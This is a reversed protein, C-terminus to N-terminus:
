GGVQKATLTATLAGATGSTYVFKIRFETFDLSDFLIEHDGSAGSISITSGFDLTRWDADISSKDKDKKRAEVQMEGVADSGSWDVFISARDFNIVNTSDSTQNGTLAVSDLM